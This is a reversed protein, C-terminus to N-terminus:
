PLVEEQITGVITVRTGVRVRPVLDDMDDNDLAVCGKTWDQSRGGHGHIEILSGIDDRRGVRGSRKLKRFRAVDDANPYDLMLARYYRTRNPGRVETIRYRGEPTADDGARVKSNMGGIGLDVDYTAVEEKGRYLLLERRLKDVLIVPEGSRASDRLTEKVWRAWNALQPSTTYSDFLRNIATVAGALRARGREAAEEAREFQSRDFATRAEGLAIEVQLLEDVVEPDGVHRALGSARPLAATLDAIARRARVRTRARAAGAQFACTEAALRAQFALRSAEDYDRRLPSRRAQVRVETEARLLASRAAACLNPARAVGQAEAAREMAFRAVELDDVPAQACALILGCLIVLAPGPRRFASSSM